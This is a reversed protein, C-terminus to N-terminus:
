TILHGSIRLIRILQPLLDGSQGFESFTRQPDRVNAREQLFCRPKHGICYFDVEHLDKLNQGTALGHQHTGPDIPGWPDHPV